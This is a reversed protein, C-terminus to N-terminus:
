WYHSSGLHFFSRAVKGVTWSWVNFNPERDDKSSCCLLLWWCSCLSSRAMWRTRRNCKQEYKRLHLGMNRPRCCPLWGGQLPLSGIDWFRIVFLTTLLHIPENGIHAISCPLRSACSWLTGRITTGVNRQALM